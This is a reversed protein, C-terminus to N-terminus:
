APPDFPGFSHCGVGRCEKLTNPVPDIRLVHCLKHWNNIDKEDSGYLDGFEKKIAVNFEHRADKKENDDNDWGYEECLRNFEAVPSSLPLYQFKTYQSFFNELPTSSGLPRVIVNKDEPQPVWRNLFFGYSHHWHACVPKPVLDLERLNVLSVHRLSLILFLRAM